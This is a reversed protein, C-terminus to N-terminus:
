SSLVSKIIQKIEAIHNAISNKIAHTPSVGRTRHWEGDPTQYAWPTKRGGPVFVGTGVEHYIAYKANTGVYVTDGNVQHSTSGRMFDTDIRGYQTYTAQAHSASQIGVAELAARKKLDLEALVEQAHSVFKVGDNAM